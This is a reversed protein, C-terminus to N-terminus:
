KRGIYYDEFTMGNKSRRKLEFEVQKRLRSRCIYEATGLRAPWLTSFTELNSLINRLTIMSCKGPDQILASESKM